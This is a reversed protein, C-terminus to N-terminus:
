NLRKLIDYYHNIAKIIGSDKLAQVIKLKQYNVDDKKLNIAKNRQEYLAIIRISYETFEEKNKCCSIKNLLSKLDYNLDKLKFCLTADESSSIVLSKINKFTQDIEDQIRQEKVSKIPDLSNIENNQFIRPEKEETKSNDLNYDIIYRKFQSNFDSIRAKLETIHHSYYIIM